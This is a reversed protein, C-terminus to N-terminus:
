PEAIAALVERRLVGVFGRLSAVLAHLVLLDLAANDPCRTATM